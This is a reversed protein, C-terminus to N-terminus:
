YPKVLPFGTEPNINHNRLVYESFEKLCPPSMRLAKGERMDNLEPLCRVKRESWGCGVQATFPGYQKEFGCASDSDSQPDQNQQHACAGLLGIATLILFRPLVGNNTMYGCKM